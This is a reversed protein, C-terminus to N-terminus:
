GPRGIFLDYLLVGILTLLAVIRLFRDWKSMGVARLEFLDYRM